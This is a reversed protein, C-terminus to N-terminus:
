RVEFARKEMTQDDLAIAVEYKGVPWGAPNAIRFTTVTASDPVLPQDSEAVLRGDATTWRASVRLGQHKGKTLVAAHIADKPGFVDQEAVVQNQEDVAKGLKVSLISFEGLDLAKGPTATAPSTPKAAMAAPKDAKATPEPTKPADDKKCAALALVTLALLVSLHRLRM